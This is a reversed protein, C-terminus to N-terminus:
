YALNPRKKEALKLWFLDCWPISAEQQYAAVLGWFTNGISTRLEAFNRVKPVTSAIKQGLAEASKHLKHAGLGQLFLLAKAFNVFILPAKQCESLSFQSARM